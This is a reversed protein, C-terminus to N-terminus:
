RYVTAEPIADRLERIRKESVNTRRVVIERLNGLAHLHRLGDDSGISIEVLGDGLISMVLGDVVPLGMEADPDIKATAVQTWPGAPRKRIELRVTNSDAQGMPPMQATMKMVGRSLTYQAWLVPGFAHEDHAEFKQGALKWDRFWFRVKGGPPPKRGQRSKGARPSHCVIAV